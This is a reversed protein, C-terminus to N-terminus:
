VKYYEKYWAIFKATGEQISTKPAYGLLKKAKSIDAHTAEVDGPQMPLMNKEAKKGLVEEIITIFDMLKVSEGRGLNFIEYKFPKDLAALVGQVIDAIFTFDRSHKGHNYVDIPEGALTTKVFKFLSLDPRGWPGYVTFFRLGTCNIKFLHSYAHAVAENSKKTAGYVSLQTDARQEESFPLETNAGYVSSSSAFVFHEVGHQRCLELLTLTGLNNSREYAFPDELSYRVGAQAGLHCVTDIQQQTFVPEIAKWDSFDAQVFSFGKKKLMALRAQKLEPDYYENLDDVGVVTDGRALLAEAVHYGIFGAVGTVLICAM